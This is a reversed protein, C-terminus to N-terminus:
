IFHYKIFDQDNEYPKTIHFPPHNWLEVNTKIMFLNSSTRNNSTLRTTPQFARFLWHTPFIAQILTGETNISKNRYIEVQKEEILDHVNRAASVIYIQMPILSQKITKTM